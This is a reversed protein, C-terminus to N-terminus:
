FIYNYLMSYHISLMKFIIMICDESCIQSSNIILYSTQKFTFKLYAELLGEIIKQYKLKLAALYRSFRNDPLLSM